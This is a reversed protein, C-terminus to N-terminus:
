EGGKTNPVLITFEVTNTGRNQVRISGGMKDEIIMKAMYLGLGTGNKTTTFYPDFIFGIIKEPIIGGDDSVIIKTHIIERDVEVTISGGKKGEEKYKLRQVVRGKIM